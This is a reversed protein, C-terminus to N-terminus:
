RETAHRTPTHTGQEEMDALPYSEAVTWEDKGVVPM